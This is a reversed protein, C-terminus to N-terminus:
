VWYFAVFMFSPSAIPHNWTETKSPVHDGEVCRKLEEWWPVRTSQKDMMKDMDDVWQASRSNIRLGIWDLTRVAREEEDERCAAEIETLDSFRLAFAKHPVSTLSTTRTTVTYKLNAHASSVLLLGVKLFRHFRSCYKQCNGFWWEGSDPQVGFRYTNYMVETRNYEAKSLYICQSPTM